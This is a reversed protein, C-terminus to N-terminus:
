ITCTNRENWTKRKKGIMWSVIRVVVEYAASCVMMTTAVVIMALLFNGRVADTELHLPISLIKVVIRYIPGCIRLVILSIRGFYQLIGNGNVLQSILIMSTVGNMATMFWM